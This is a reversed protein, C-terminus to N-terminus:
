SGGVLLSFRILRLSDPLDTVPLTAADSFLRESSKAMRVKGKNRSLGKKMPM